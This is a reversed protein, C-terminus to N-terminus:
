HEPRSQFYAKGPGRFLRLPFTKTVENYDLRCHFGYLVHRIAVKGGILQMSPRHHGQSRRQIAPRDSQISSIGSDRNLHNLSDAPDLGASM